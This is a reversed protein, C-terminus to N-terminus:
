CQMVCRPLPHFLLTLMSSIVFSPNFKLVLFLKLIIVLDFQIFNLLLQLPSYFCSQVVVAPTLFPPLKSHPGSSHTSCLFISFLILPMAPMQVLTSTFLQLPICLLVCSLMFIYHSPLCACKVLSAFPPKSPVTFSLHLVVVIPIALM